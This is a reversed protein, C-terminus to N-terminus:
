KIDADLVILGNKEMNIEENKRKILIEKLEEMNINQDDDDFVLRKDIKIDEKLSKSKEIFDDDLAERSLFSEEFEKISIDKLESIDLYEKRIYLVPICFGDVPKSFYM